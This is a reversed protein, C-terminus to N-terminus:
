LSSDIDYYLPLLLDDTDMALREGELEKRSQFVEIRMKYTHEKERQATPLQKENQIAWHAVLIRKHPFGNPVASEVHYTNAVLARKYPLIDEPDPIPTVEILRASITFIQSEADSDTTSLGHEIPMEETWQGDLAADHEIWLDPFFNAHPNKTLQLWTEISRYDRSFKGLHVEVTEGGGRINNGGHRIKFPGTMVMFRAHNSWRPHYVEHGGIGPANALRVQWRKNNQTDVLTLARHAGDLIWMLYRNDPAMATWCGRGQRTWTHDSLNAVGCNPWPFMGAARQGDASLQFNDRNVTTGNWVLEESSPDILPFRVVSSFTNAAPDVPERGTYIWVDGESKDQWIALALGKSLERTTHGEWDTIWVAKKKHDSYVIWEGCPTILPKRYSAPGPLIIREGRRDRSDLGMLQLQGRDSFVDNREWADQLWVLRTHGGTLEEIRNTTRSQTTDKKAACATLLVLLCPLLSRVVSPMVTPPSNSTSRRRQM